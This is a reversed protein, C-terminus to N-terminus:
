KTPRTVILYQIQTSRPHTVAGQSRKRRVRTLGYSLGVWAAAALALGSLLIAWKGIFQPYQSLNLGDPKLSILKLGFGFLGLGSTTLLLSALAQGSNLGVRSLGQTFGLLLLM